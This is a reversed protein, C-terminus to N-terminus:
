FNKPLKNLFLSYMEKKQQLKLINQVLKQQWNRFFYIFMIIFIVQAEDYNVARADVLDRKNGVLLLRTEEHSHKNVDGM